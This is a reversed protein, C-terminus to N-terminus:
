GGVSTKRLPSNDKLADLPLKSDRPWILRLRSSFRRDTVRRRYRTMLLGKGKIADKPLRAQVFSRAIIFKKWM